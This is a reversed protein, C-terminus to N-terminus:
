LYAFISVFVFLFLNETQCFYACTKLILSKETYPFHIKQYLYSKKKNCGLNCCFTDGSKSFLSSECLLILLFDKSFNVNFYFIETWLIIKDVEPLILM